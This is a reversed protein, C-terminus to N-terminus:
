AHMHVHITRCKYSVTRMFLFLGYRPIGFLLKYSRYRLKEEEDHAMLQYTRTPTVVNFCAKNIDQQSPPQDQVAIM